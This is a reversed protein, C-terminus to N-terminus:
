APGSARFTYSDDFHMDYESGNVWRWDMQNTTDNKDWILFWTVVETWGRTPMQQVERSVGYVRYIYKDRKHRIYM